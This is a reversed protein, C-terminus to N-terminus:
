PPCRRVAASSFGIALLLLIAASAWQSLMMPPEGGLLNEAHARPFFLTAGQGAAGLTFDLALAWGRGGGRRGFTSGFAFLAAYASATLAAIWASTGADVALPPATPDHAVTAALAAALAGLTGAIAMTALVLGAAVARRSAGFRALATGALDLRSSAVRVSAAMAALPLIFGFVGGQLARSAAGMLGARREALGLLAAALLAILAGAIFTMRSARLIGARFGAGLGVSSV